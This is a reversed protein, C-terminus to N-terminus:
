GGHLEVLKKSISLGLGTGGYERAIGSDLQQFVHFLKGLDEEKIGIGNDSISFQALDGIKKATIKIAGGEAKSFKVANDLLHQLIQTFKDIDVEIFELQPDIDKRITIRNTDAKSLIQEINQDITKDVPMKRIVLELKGADIIILDLIDNVLTLLHQGSRQINDLYKEQIGNLEGVTKQKLIDSFGIISNLPTRLEHSMTNIFHNKMIDISKLDEIAKSLAINQELITTAAGKVIWILSLYLIGLGLFIIIAVTFQLDYIEDDIIDLVEYLEVVGGIKGDVDRIPVYIEMLSSFNQREYINEQKNLDRNIEVKISGKLADSLEENDNFTQGILEEKDSYIITGNNNFIKIRIIEDTKLSDYYLKFSQRNEQSYNKKTLDTLHNTKASIEVISVTTSKTRQMVMDEIKYSIVLNLVVGLLVIILISYLSFKRILNNKEKIM